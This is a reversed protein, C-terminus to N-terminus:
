KQVNFRERVAKELKGALEKDERLRAIANDRGQFREGYLTIWAGSKELLGFEGGLDILDAEKSIGQGYILDVEAQRFPPAMKNKVTKILTKAGIVTDGDKIGAIRRIDLRVSSAFKLARGGSTTEPSGFMVGIKSRIQNIFILVCNSSHVSKTLKRMAQSMMRAQLGMQADGFEGELESKPVLLSVSDVIVVAVEKSCVLRDTIELAEEGCSPQSVWLRGVDVGLKQAYGIDLAHEADVIAAEGEKQGEAAVQLCLTTKGGSEPGFVEVIRGKPLGGVGLAYDLKPSGTSIVSVASIKKDGLCTLAGAGFQKEIKAKADKLSM